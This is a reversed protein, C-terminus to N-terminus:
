GATLIGPLLASFIGTTSSPPQATSIGTDNIVDILKALKADRADDTWGKFQKKLVM